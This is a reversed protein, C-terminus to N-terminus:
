CAYREAVDWVTSIGKRLAVVEREKGFYTAAVGYGLQASMKSPTARISTM